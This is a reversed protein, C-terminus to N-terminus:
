NYVPEGYENWVSMLEKEEMPVEEQISLAMYRFADAAHSTWDHLPNAKYTQHKEDWERRYQVLSNLLGQTKDEDFWCRAMMMRAQQIGDGVSVNPAVEVSLGYEKAVDISSKGSSLAKVRGDWPFYHTKYKYPKEKLIQIYEPLTMGSNFYFDIVRIEKGFIQYFVIATDDSWGLDWATNVELHPDYIAKCIRNQERASKIEESYYAGKIAAEFSCYYEQQIMDETTGELKEKAIDAFTLLKTDDITLLEVFWEPNRKAMDYLQWAHNKGLPTTNFIAVGNNMKLIPKIVEWAQPNQWAYESFICTIPNTGRISDYNDTGILQLISGNILEIKMETNNVSKIVEKPIHDLFKYGANDIGDWIVKKAQAYTPLLYYHIGKVQVARKIFINFLVKDKGARRHWLCFARKVGSDIARLLPMQYSRPAFNHPIKIKM